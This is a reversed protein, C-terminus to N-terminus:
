KKVKADAVFGAESLAMNSSNGQTSVDLTGSLEISDATPDLPPTSFLIDRRFTLTGKSPLPKNLKWNGSATPLPGYQLTWDISNVTVDMDSPNTLVMNLSARNNQVAAQTIALTPNSSNPMSCGTLAAALLLGATTISAPKFSGSLYTRKMPISEGLPM